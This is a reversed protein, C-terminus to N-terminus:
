YQFTRWMTYILPPAIYIHGKEMDKIKTVCECEFVNAFIQVSFFISILSITEGTYHQPKQMIQFYTSEFLCEYTWLHLSTTTNKGKNTKRTM